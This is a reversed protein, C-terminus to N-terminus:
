FPIVILHKYGLNKQVEYDKVRFDWLQWETNENRWNEHKWFQENKRLFNTCDSYQSDRFGEM